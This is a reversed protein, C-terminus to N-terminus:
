YLFRLDRPVKSLLSEVKDLAKVTDVKVRRGRRSATSRIHDKRSVAMVSVLSCGSLVESESTGGVPVM